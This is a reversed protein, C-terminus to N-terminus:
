GPDGSILEHARLAVHDALVGRQLEVVSVREAGLREVLYAVAVEPRLAEGCSFIDVAAYSYEPWTHISLHSESIVVVGSLGVPNFQHFTTAVITAGARRAAEELGNQVAELDELVAPRCDFLEVILHRGLRKM